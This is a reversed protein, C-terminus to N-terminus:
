AAAESAIANTAEATRGDTRRDGEKRAVLTPTTGAAATHVLTLWIMSPAWPLRSHDASAHTDRRLTNKTGTKFGSLLCGRGGMKVICYKMCISFNVLSM